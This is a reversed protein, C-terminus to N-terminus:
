RDYCRKRRKKVHASLVVKAITRAYVEGRSYKAYGYLKNEGVYLCASLGTDGRIAM